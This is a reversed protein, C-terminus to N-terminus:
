SPDEVIVGPAGDPDILELEVDPVHDLYQAAAAAAITRAEPESPARVVLTLYPADPCYVVFLM